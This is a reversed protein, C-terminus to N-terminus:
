IEGTGVIYNERDDNIPEGQAIAAGEVINPRNVLFFKVVGETSYDLKEVGNRVVSVCSQSIEWSVDISEDNFAKKSELYMKELFLKIENESRKKVKNFFLSDANVM